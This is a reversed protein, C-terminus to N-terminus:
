PRSTVEAGFSLLFSCFFRELEGGGTNFDLMFSRSSWTRDQSEYPAPCNDPIPGELEM